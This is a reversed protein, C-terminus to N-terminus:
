RVKLHRKEPTALEWVGSLRVMVRGNGIGEERPIRVGLEISAWDFFQYRAGGGITM